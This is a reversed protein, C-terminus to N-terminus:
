AFVDPQEIITDTDVLSSGVFSLTEGEKIHGDLSCVFDADHYAEMNACVSFAHTNNNAEVFESFIQGNSAHIGIVTFPKLM